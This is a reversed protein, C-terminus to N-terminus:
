DSRRYKLDLNPKVIEILAKLQKEACMYGITLDFEIGLFEQTLTNNRPKIILRTSEVGEYTQGGCSMQHQHRVLMEELEKDYTPSIVEDRIKDFKLDGDTDATANGHKARIAEIQEKLKNQSQISSM